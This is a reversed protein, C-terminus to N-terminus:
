LSLPLSFGVKTMTVITSSGKKVPLILPTKGVSIGNVNVMAGPPISNFSINQHTGSLITACSTM